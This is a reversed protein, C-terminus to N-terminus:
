VLQNACNIQVPSIPVTGMLKSVYIGVSQNKLAETIALTNIMKSRHIPILKSSPKSHLKKTESLFAMKIELEEDNLCEDDLDCFRKWNFLNQCIEEASPRKTPDGDMCQKALKIYPAPTGEGFRPRLGKGIEKIEKLRDYPIWEIVNDYCKAKLQSEKIFYDLEKNGSTWGKNIKWEDHMPHEIEDISQYYINILSEFVSRTEPRNDPDKDWCRRYLEVYQPPTGGIPEERNGRIIHNTLLKELEKLEKQDKKLFSEFPPRGSSIEWLVVGLSYIDSKLTLDYESKMKLFQPEVYAISGLNLSCEDFSSEANTIKSLGFSAIKIKGEHVLINMSNETILRKLTIDDMITDINLSKHVVAFNRKKWKSKYVPIGFRSKGIEKFDYFLDYNHLPIKLASIREEIKEEIRTKKNMM